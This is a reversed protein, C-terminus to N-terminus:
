TVFISPALSGSPLVLNYPRPAELIYILVPLGTQDFTNAVFLCSNEVGPLRCSLDVGLRAMLTPTTISLLRHAFTKFLAATAALHKPLAHRTYSVPQTHKFYAHFFTIASYLPTVPDIAHVSRLNLRKLGKLM